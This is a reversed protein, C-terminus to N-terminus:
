SARRESSERRANRYARLARNHQTRAKRAEVHADHIADALSGRFGEFKDSILRLEKETVWLPVRPPKPKATPRGVEIPVEM